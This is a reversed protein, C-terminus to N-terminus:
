ALCEGFAHPHRGLLLERCKEVRDQLAAPLGCIFDGRSGEEKAGVL